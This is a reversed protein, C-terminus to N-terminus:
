RAGPTTTASSMFGITRGERGLGARFVLTYWYLSIGFQTPSFQTRFPEAEVAFCESSISASLQCVIPAM